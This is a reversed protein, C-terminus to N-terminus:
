KQYNLINMSREADALSPFISKKNNMGRVAAVIKDPVERTNLSWLLAALGSVFPAAFSTGSLTTFGSNGPSTSTINIGPAMLGRRAISPSSNSSPHPRGKDDAAVVPIIWEHDLLSSYGINGYNGAAAIILVGRRFAYEYADQLNAFKVLSTSTIALSLNIIRVGADVVEIIARALEGATTEPVSFPYKPSEFFLPRLIIECEPCISPSRSGRKGSLIGLVFTGHTCSISDARNCIALQRDNVTKIRSHQFASHALYAPGDIIGISVNPSGGSKSM